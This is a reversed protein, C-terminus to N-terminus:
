AAEPRNSMRDSLLSVQLKRENDPLRQAEELWDAVRRVSDALERLDKPSWYVRERESWEGRPTVVNWGKVSECSWVPHFEGIYHLWDLDNENLQTIM